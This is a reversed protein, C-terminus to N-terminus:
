LFDFILGVTFVNGDTYAEEKFFPTLSYNAYFGLWRYGFYAQVTSRFPNSYKYHGAYNDHCKYKFRSNTLIEASINAGYIMGNSKGKVGVPIGLYSSCIKAKKVSLSTLDPPLVQPVVNDDFTLNVFSWRLSATFSVDDTVPANITIPTWAFTRSRSPDVKFQSGSLVNVGLYFPSIIDIGANSKGFYAVHFPIHEIPSVNKVRVRSQGFASGGILILIAAISLLRKM